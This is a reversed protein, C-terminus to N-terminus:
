RLQAAETRGPGRVINTIPVLALGRQGVKRSWDQLLDITVPYPHALVVAAGSQQAIREAEVLRGRIAARSVQGEDLTRDNVAHPLGIEQAAGLAASDAVDGNDVFILGRQKLTRAVPNFARKNDVFASGMQAVVGVIERGKGLIWKLRELNKPTPTTTMLAKPGPDDAPFSRPEMPLDVLVEHGRARARLSWEAARRAYPSFSLSIEGPLRQIAAETAASSLGLGRIIVAIRDVGEPPSLDRAYRQWQPPEPSDAMGSEGTVGDGAGPAAEPAAPAEPVRATQTTEAVEESAGAADAQAGATESRTGDPEGAGATEAGAGAGAATAATQGTTRSTGTQGTATQGAATQGMTAEGSAGQGSTSPDTAAQGSATQGREPADTGGDGPDPITVTATDSDSAGAGGAKGGSEPTGAPGASQNLPVEVRGYRALEARDAPFFLVYGFAAGFLAIVVLSAVILAGRGAGMRGAEREGDDYM